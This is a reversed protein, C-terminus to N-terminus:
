GSRTERRLAPLRAARRPLQQEGRDPRDPRGEADPDVARCSDATRELADRLDWGYVALAHNIGTLVAATAGPGREWYDEIEDMVARARFLAMPLEWPDIKSGFRQELDRLVYELNIPLGGPGGYRPFRFGPWGLERAVTVGWSLDTNYIAGSQFGHTLSDGIAVLRHKPEGGGRAAVDRGLKPDFCPVRPGARAREVVEDPTDPALEESM